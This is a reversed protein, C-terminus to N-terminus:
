RGGDVSYQVRTKLGIVGRGKGDWGPIPARCVPCKARQSTPGHYASRAITSKVATFLCEGCCIHGCPTLTPYSPPSFCIPCVYASLPEAQTRPTAPAPPTPPSPPLVADGAGALVEDQGIADLLIPTRSLDPMEEDVNMPLSLVHSPTRSLLQMARLGSGLSFESPGPTANGDWSGMAALPPASFDHVPVGDGAANLRRRKRPRGPAGHEPADSASSYSTTDNDDAAAAEDATRVGRRPASPGAEGPVGREM